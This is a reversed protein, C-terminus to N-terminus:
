AITLACAYIHVYCIQAGGVFSGPLYSARNAFNFKVFNKDCYMTHAKSLFKLWRFNQQIRYNHAVYGVSGLMIKM